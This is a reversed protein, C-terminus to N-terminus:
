LENKINKKLIERRKKRENKVKNGVNANEYFCKRFCYIGNRARKNRM